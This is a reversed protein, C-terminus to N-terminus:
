SLHFLSWPSVTLFTDVDSMQDIHLRKHQTYKKAYGHINQNGMAMAAPTQLASSSSGPTQVPTLISPAEDTGSGIGEEDSQLGSTSFSHKHSPTNVPSSSDMAKKAVTDDEDDSMPFLIFFPLFSTKVSTKKLEVNM